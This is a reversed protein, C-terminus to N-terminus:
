RVWAANREPNVHIRYDGSTAVIPMDDLIYRALPSAAKLPVPAQWLSLMKVDSIVCARPDARIIDLTREQREISFANIWGTLNSNDPAPVRSWFNFSGMGPM